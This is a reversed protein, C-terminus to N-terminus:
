LEEYGNDVDFIATVEGGCSNAIEQARVYAEDETGNFNTRVEIRYPQTM